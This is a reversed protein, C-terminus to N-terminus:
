VENRLGSVILNPCIISNLNYTPPHMGSGFLAELLRGIIAKREKRGKQLSRLPWTNFIITVYM